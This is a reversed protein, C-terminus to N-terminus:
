GRELRVTAGMNYEERPCRIAYQGDYIMAQQRRHRASGYMHLAYPMSTLGYGGREPRVKRWQGQAGDAIRRANLENKLAHWFASETRVKPSDCRTVHVSGGIFEILM